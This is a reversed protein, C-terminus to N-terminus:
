PRVLRVQRPGASGVQTQGLGRRAGSPNSRAGITATDRGAGSAAAASPDGADSTSGLQEIAKAFRDTIQGERAVWTSQWHLLLTGIVATGLVLQALSAFAQVLAARVALGRRVVWVVGVLLVAGVTAVVAGWGLGPLSEPDGGALARAAAELPVRLLALAVVGALLLALRRRPVRGLAGRLARAPDAMRM